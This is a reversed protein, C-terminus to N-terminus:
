GTRPDGQLATLAARLDPPVIVKARTIHDYLVVIAEGRAHLDGPAEARALAHEIRISTDGVGVVRAGALLEAPFVVPRLFDCRTSALIPGTSRASATDFGVRRFLAIRATEFWTFFRTNNAHGLADMEGWHMSFRVVVPYGEM